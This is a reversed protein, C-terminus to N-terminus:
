PPPLPASRRSPRGVPVDELLWRSRSCRFLWSRVVLAWVVMTCDEGAVWAQGEAPATAVDPPWERVGERAAGRRSGLRQEDRWQGNTEERQGCCRLMSLLHRCHCLFPDNSVSWAREGASM